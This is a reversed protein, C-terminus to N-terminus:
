SYQRVCHISGRVFKFPLGATRRCSGPFELKLLVSIERKLEPEVVSHRGDAALGLWGSINSGVPLCVHIEGLWILGFLDVCV